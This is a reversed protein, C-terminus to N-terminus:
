GRFPLASDPTGGSLANYILKLDKKSESYILKYSDPHKVSVFLSSSVSLFIVGM